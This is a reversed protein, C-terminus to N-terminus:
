KVAALMDELQKIMPATKDADKLHEEKAAKKAKAIVAKIAKVPDYDVKATQNTNGVWEYWSVEPLTVGGNGSKKYRGEEGEPKVWRVEVFTRIYDQITRTPLSKVGVCASVIATLRAYNEHGGEAKPMAQLFGDMLLEQIIERDRTANSIVGGLKNNFDNVSMLQKQM